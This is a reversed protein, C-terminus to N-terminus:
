SGPGPRRTATRRTRSSRGGAQHVWRGAALPALAILVPVFAAGWHAGDAAPGVLTLFGLPLLVALPLSRGLAPPLTLLAGFLALAVVASSVVAPAPTSDWGFQMAALLRDVGGHLWRSMTAGPGGTAPAMLWASGVLLVPGAVAVVPEWWTRRRQHHPTGLWWRALWVPVLLVMFERGAVAMLLLVLGAIRWQRVLCMLAAVAFFAAWVETLTFALSGDAWWFSDLYAVLAIPAVLAPGPTTVATALLYACVAAALGFVVFWVLLAYPTSGPLLKWLHFLFPERFDFPTPMSTAQATADTGPSWPHRAALDFPDPMSSAEVGDLGIIAKRYAPYFFQGDKMLDVIRLYVEGAATYHEPVPPAALAAHRAAAAPGRPAVVGSLFLGYGLVGAVAVAQTARSGYREMAVAAVSATLPALLVALLAVSGPLVGVRALAETGLGGALVAATVRLWDNGGRWTLGVVLGAFVPRAVDTVSLVTPDPAAPLVFFTFTGLLVATLFPGLGAQSSTRRGGVRRTTTRTSM